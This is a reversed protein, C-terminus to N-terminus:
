ALLTYNPNVVGTPIFNQTMATFKGDGINDIGNDTKVIYLSVVDGTAFVTTSKKGGQIRDVLIYRIDAERLLQWALNFVGNGLPDQDRFIEVTANVKTLTPTVENGVSTILLVSDTASAALGLKASDLVAQSINGGISANVANATIVSQWTNLAAATPASFPTLIPAAVTGSIINTVGAIDICPVVLITRTQRMLRKIAM